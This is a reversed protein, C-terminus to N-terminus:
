KTKTLYEVVIRDGPRILGKREILFPNQQEIECKFEPFYINRCDRTAYRFAIDWLTDGSKVVYVERVVRIDATHYISEHIAAGMAFSCAFVILLVALLKKSM